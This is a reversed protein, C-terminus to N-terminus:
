VWIPTLPLKGPVSRVVISKRGGQEVDDVGVHFGEGLAYITNCLREKLDIPCIGQDPSAIWMRGDAAIEVRDISAFPIAGNYPTISGDQMRFYMLGYPYAIWAGGQVTALDYIPDTPFGDMFRFSVARNGNILFGGQEGAAVWVAPGNVQIEYISSSTLGEQPGIHSWTNANLDLVHMGDTGGALLRGGVSDCHFTQINSGARAQSWRMTSLDLVSIMGNDHGVYLREGVAAPCYVLDNAPSDVLGDEPTFLRALNRGLDWVVLGGATIVWLHTDDSLAM